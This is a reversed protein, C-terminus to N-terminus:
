ARRRGAQLGSQITALSDRALLGATTAAHYLADRIEEETLVGDHIFRSLAFVEKNLTNNRGGDLTCAVRRVAHYLAGVAYLRAKDGTPIPKPKNVVPEPKPRVAQLLWGPADPPTVKWPPVAWVYPQKTDPHISPPITHSQRGRLPDCGLAPHGSEGIIMEETHRFFIALGGGGSRMTPRPPVGNKRALETFAGVGDHAHLPPRDLDLCWVLSPGCVVRWNCNPYQESWAELQDLDATAADTAGEFCAARSRSSQPYLAWGLLAVREIDPHLTM